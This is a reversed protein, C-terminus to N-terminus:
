SFPNLWSGLRALGRGIRALVGNNRSKEHPLVQVAARVTEPAADSLLTFVRGDGGWVVREPSAPRVWVAARGVKERTFGAM